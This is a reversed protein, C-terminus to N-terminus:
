MLLKIVDDAKLDFNGCNFIVEEKRFGSDCRAFLGWGENPHRMFGTHVVLVGSDNAAKVLVPNALHEPVTSRSSRPSEWKRQLFHSISKARKAKFNM